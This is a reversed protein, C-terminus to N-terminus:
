QPMGEMKWIRKISYGDPMEMLEFMVKDGAKLGNLSAKSSLDFDMTMAPWELEPIPDHMMNVKNQEPKLQKIVGHGSIIKQVVPKTDMKWIRKIIYGEPMEMLEFMVKDDNNLGKLSADDSLDFDMTMSPWKLEPIPDHTLNVKHQEPKMKRIIGHVSIVKHGTQETEVSKMRSLSAKLSAESDILFQGSTVVKEGEHLGAVIEVAEGSEIGVTVERSEYRGNGAELIVRTQQGTRILAERPIYLLDKKAGGFITIDAYMNPKLVYDINDFRLRVKLTRTKPNLAPYVYEVRGKMERGPLYKLNVEAMQDVKVWGAQSEFIEAILWVTSLDALMMVETAPKVYMGERVKLETMVGDQPAYFKLLRQVNKTKALEQIQNESVGLAILRDHSADRLSKNGVRLSQVFEEQANVLVPSYLQFLVDGKSVRDGEAKVFLKEIWGDTRLHIHSMKDEDYNVYGVTDIRRWLRGFKVSATRVGMNQVVSPSITVGTGDGEEEYVPVLDMGMPSKGPEDRRFNADMPAVWYLIKKEKVATEQQQKKEENGAIKNKIDSVQECAVLMIGLFMVSIIKSIKM